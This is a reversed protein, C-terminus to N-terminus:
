VQFRARFRRAYRRSMVLPKDLRKMHVRMAGNFWPEFRQAQECNIIISRQIRCFQREPLLADWEKMSKLVLGIPGDVGVLRTYDGEALICIISTLKLFRPAQNVSVFICDDFALRTPAPKGTDANGLYREIAQRLREPKLPKMLYDLANVEFARVAFEDHATVFIIKAALNTREFLEFGSAGPMQIDLFILDPRLRRIAEAAEDVSGAEGVVEIETHDRLLYELERRALREDDVILARHPKM